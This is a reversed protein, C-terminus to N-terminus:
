LCACGFGRGDDLVRVGEGGEAAGGAGGLKRVLGEVVGDGGGSIGTVAPSGDGGVGADGVLREVLSGVAVVRVFWGGMVVSSSMSGVSRRARVTVWAASMSPM